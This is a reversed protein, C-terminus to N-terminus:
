PFSILWGVDASGRRWMPRDGSGMPRDGGGCDAALGDGDARGLWAEEGRKRARAGGTLAERRREKKGEEGVRVPWGLDGTLSEREARMGLTGRWGVFLPVRVGPFGLGLGWPATSGRAGRGSAGGCRAEQEVASRGSRHVEAGALARLLEVEDGPLKGFSRGRGRTRGTGSNFRFGGGTLREARAIGRRRHDDSVGSGWPVRAPGGRTSGRHGFARLGEAATKGMFGSRRRRRGTM